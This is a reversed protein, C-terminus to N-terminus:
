QLKEVIQSLMQKIEKVETKLDEIENNKKQRAEAFEREKLIKERNVNLVAGTRLDKRYDSDDKIKVLKDKM